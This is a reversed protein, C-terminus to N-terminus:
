GDEGVGIISVIFLLFIVFFLFSIGVSLSVNIGNGTTPFAFLGLFSFKSM